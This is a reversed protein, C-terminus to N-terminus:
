KKPKGWSDVISEAKRIFEDDEMYFPDSDFGNFLNMIFQSMRWDPFRSHLKEIVKWIKPLRKPDRM